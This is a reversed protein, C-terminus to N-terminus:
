VKLGMKVKRKRAFVLALITGAIFGGIHAWYAVENKIGFFGYFWQMMFWFALFAIAPISIIRPWMFFVMTLIKARPYLVFYAGLIGSIAGSAGLAGIAFESPTSLSMIHTFTALLGCAIYFILYGTHGFADEVNDGFIYLYLMNGLLHAWNAHMFMSTFLTHLKQGHVIENPIMIFNQEIFNALSNDLFINMLSLWYITFIVVNM